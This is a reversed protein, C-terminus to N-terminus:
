KSGIIAYVKPSQKSVWDPFKDVLIKGVEIPKVSINFGNKKLLHKALKLSDTDNKYEHIEVFIKRVNSLKDAIDNLIPLETGETDIKLFDISRDIYSSLKVVKIETESFTTRAGWEPVMTNGVSEAGDSFDGYFSETGEFNSLGSNYVKIGELNNERINKKLIQFNNKDPEFAIIESDPYLYKFFLVSIGIHAGCDIILPNNKECTFHYIGAGFIEDILFDYEFQNNYYITFDKFETKQLDM